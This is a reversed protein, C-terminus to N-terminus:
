SFLHCYMTNLFTQSLTLYCVIVYEDFTSCLRNYRLIKPESTMKWFRESQKIQFKVLKKSVRCLSQCFNLCFLLVLHWSVPCKMSKQQWIRNLLLTKLKLQKKKKKGKQQRTRSVSTLSHLADNHKQTRELIRKRTVAECIFV